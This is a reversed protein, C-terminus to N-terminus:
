LRMLARANGSFIQETERPPLGLAKVGAITNAILGHGQEADFPADTAFIVKDSGFFAHGCQMPAVEGSLATDAFLMKYYERPHRKLGRKEAVPNREPTGFFIQQFGLNIKASFYPIMGGMHHSIIKLQPLEDFIGSYILRTMCATTEYPWGFCFWIEDESQAESSYDATQPGRMPHIWVPLDHAAMRQFIPRFEANSLPTGAVNTFLQIGRAGLAGIARDIEALSADINNMPLAAIFTPFRDPHRRCIDALADNAIRALEPTRDPPAVLELPPNALSLVQQLDDFPDLLRLRADLDLLSKLRPFATVAPTGPVLSILRDHYAKPMFHNFMDIMMRSRSESIIKGHSRSPRTDADLEGFSREVGSFAPLRVRHPQGHVYGCALDSPMLANRRAFDLKDYLTNESQTGGYCVVILVIPAPFM